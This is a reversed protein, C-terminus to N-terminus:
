TVRCQTRMGLSTNGGYRCVPLQEASDDCHMTPRYSHRSTLYAVRTRRRRGARQLGSGSVAPLSTVSHAPNSSAHSTSSYWTVTPQSHTRRCAHYEGREVYCLRADGDEIGSTSIHRVLDVLDRSQGTLQHQPIIKKAAFRPTAARRATNGEDDRHSRRM